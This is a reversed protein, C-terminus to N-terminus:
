FWSDQNDDCAESGVIDKYLAELQGLDEELAKFGTGEPNAQADQLHSTMQEIIECM